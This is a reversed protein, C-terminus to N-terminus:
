RLFPLYLEADRSIRFKDGRGLKDLWSITAPQEILIAIDELPDCSSRVLYLTDPSISYQM